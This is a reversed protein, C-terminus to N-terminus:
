PHGSVLRALYPSVESAVADHRVLRCFLASLRLAEADDRPAPRSPLGDLSSAGKSSGHPEVGGDGCSGGSTCHLWLAKSNGGFVPQLLSVWLPWAADLHSRSSPHGRTATSVACVEAPCRLSISQVAARIECAALPAVEARQLLLMEASCSAAACGHEDSVQAACLRAGSGDSMKAAAARAVVGLAHSMYLAFTSPFCYVPPDTNMGGSGSKLLLRTDTLYGRYFHSDSIIRLLSRHLKGTADQSDVGVLLVLVPSAATTGEVDCLATSPVTSSRLAERDKPTNSTDSTSLLGAERLWFAAEEISGVPVGELTPVHATRPPEKAVSASPRSPLLIHHGDPHTGSVDLRSSAEVTVGSRGGMGKLDFAMSSWATEEREDSPAAEMSVTPQQRRAAAPLLLDVWGCTAAARDSERATATGALVGSRHMRPAEMGSVCGASVTISLARIGSRAAEGQLLQLLRLCLSAPQCTQRSTHLQECAAATIDSPSPATARCVNNTADSGQSCFCCGDSSTCVLTYHYGHLVDQVAETLLSTMSPCPPLANVDTDIRDGEGNDLGAASDAAGTRGEAESIDDSEEGGLMGVAQNASACSSLEVLDYTFAEGTPTHLLSYPDMQCLQPQGSAQPAPYSPPGLLLVASRQCKAHEAIRSELSHCLSQTHSLDTTARRLQAEADEFNRLLQATRAEAAHLTTRLESEQRQAAEYAYRAAEYAAMHEEVVARTSHQKARLARLQRTASLLMIPQTREREHLQQTERHRHTLGHRGRAHLPNLLVFFPRFFIKNMLWGVHACGGPENETTGPRAMCM